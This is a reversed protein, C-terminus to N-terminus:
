NQSCSLGYTEKEQAENANRPYLFVIGQKDDLLLRNNDSSSFYSMIANTSEQPHDLGVCHGIEHTLVRILKTASEKQSEELEITCGTFFYDDDMEFQAQGGSTGDAGSFNVTIKRNNSNTDNFDADTTGTLTLFSAQVNNFDDFVSQFVQNLTVTEGETALSDSGSTDNPIAETGDSFDIFLKTKVTSENSIPWRNQKFYTRFGLSFFILITLNLTKIM